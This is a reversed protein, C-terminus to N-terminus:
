WLDLETPKGYLIYMLRAKKISEVRGGLVVELSWVNESCYDFLGALYYWIFSLCM